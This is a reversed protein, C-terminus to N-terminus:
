IIKMLNYIVAYCDRYPTSKFHSREYIGVRGTFGEHGVREHVRIVKPCEGKPVRNYIHFIKKMKFRPDIRGVSM